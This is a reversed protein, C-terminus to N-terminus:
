YLLSCYKVWGHATQKKKVEATEKYLLVWAEHNNDAPKQSPNVKFAFKRANNYYLLCNMLKM